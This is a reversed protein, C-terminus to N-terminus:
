RYIVSVTWDSDGLTVERRAPFTEPILTLYCGGSAPDRMLPVHYGM